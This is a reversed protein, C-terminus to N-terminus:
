VAGQSKNRSNNKKPAKRNFLTKSDRQQKLDNNQKHTVLSLNDLSNNLRDGDIHDVEFDKRFSGYFATYVLRSLWWHIREGKDNTLKLKLYGNKGDDHIRMFKGTKTNFVKANAYIRYRSYGKIVAFKEETAM